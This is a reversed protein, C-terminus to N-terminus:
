LTPHEAATFFTQQLRATETDAKVARV